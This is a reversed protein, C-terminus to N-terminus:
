RAAITMKIVTRKAAAAVCFLTTLVALKM